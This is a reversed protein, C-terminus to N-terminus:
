YCRRLDFCMWTQSNTRVSKQPWKHCWNWFKWSTYM